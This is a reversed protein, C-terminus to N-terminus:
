LKNLAIAVRSTYREELSRLISMMIGDVVASAKTAACVGTTYCMM